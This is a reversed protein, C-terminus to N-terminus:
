LTRQTRDALSLIALSSTPRAGDTHFRAVADGFIRSEAVHDRHGEAVELERIALEMRSTIAGDAGVAAVRRRLQARADSRAHNVLEPYGSVEVNVGWARAQQRTQWDDHRISVSIGIVIAAPMWGAHLTKAFDQGALSTCFLKAPRTTSQARVATGLAVFERNSQGLHRETIRVDVVGDGGLAQCELLMRYIATDFGRYLAEVYPAYGSYGVRQGSTVTQSRLVSPAAFGGYNGYGCGAWGTWGIQEVICGMVEGVPTFGCSEVGVHGPVSLLSSRVKGARGRSIRAEAQPPLGRGDWETTM